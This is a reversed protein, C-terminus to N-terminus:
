SGGGRMQCTSSYVTVHHSLSALRTVQKPVRPTAEQGKLVRELIPAPPLSGLQFRNASRFVM